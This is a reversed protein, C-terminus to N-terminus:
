TLGDCGSTWLQRRQLNGEDLFKVVSNMPLAEVDVPCFYKNLPNTWQPELYLVHMIYLCLFFLFAGMGSMGVMDAAPVLCRPMAFMMTGAKRHCGFDM